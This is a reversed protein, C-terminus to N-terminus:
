DNVRRVLNINMVVDGSDDTIVTEAVEYPVSQYTLRDREQIDADPFALGVLSGTLRDGYETDMEIEMPSGVWLSEKHTATTETGGRAGTTETPREITFEEVKGRLISQVMRGGGSTPINM